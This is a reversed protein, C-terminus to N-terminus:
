TFILLSHIMAKFEPVSDATKSAPTLPPAQIQLNAGVQLPALVLLVQHILLSTVPGVVTM